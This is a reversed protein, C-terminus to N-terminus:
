KRLLLHFHLEEAISRVTSISHYFILLCSVSMSFSREEMASVDVSASFSSRCRSPSSLVKLSMWEFNDSISDSLASDRAALM